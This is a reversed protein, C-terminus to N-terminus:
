HPEIEAGGGKQMFIDVPNEVGHLSIGFNGCTITM